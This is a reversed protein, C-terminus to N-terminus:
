RCLDIPMVMADAHCVCPTSRIEILVSITKTGRPLGQRLEYNLQWSPQHQRCDRPADAQLNFSLEICAHVHMSYQLPCIVYPWAGVEDPFTMEATYPLLKDTAINLYRVDASVLFSRVSPVAYVRIPTRVLFDSSGNM